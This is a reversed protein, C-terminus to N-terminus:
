FWVIGFFWVNYSMKPRKPRPQSMYKGTKMKWHKPLIVLHEAPDLMHETAFFRLSRFFNRSIVIGARVGFDYFRLVVKYAFKPHKRDVKSSVNQCNENETSQCLVLPEALDWMLEMVTLDSVQWFFEQSWFGLEWVLIYSLRYFTNEICKSHNTAVKPLLKTTKFNIYKPLIALPETPDWVLETAFSDSVQCFFNKLNCDLSQYWFALGWLTTNIECKSHNQDDVCLNRRNKQLNEYDFVSISSM